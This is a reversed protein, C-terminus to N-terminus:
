NTPRCLHCKLKRQSAPTVCGIHEGREEVGGRSGATQSAPTLTECERLRRGPIRSVAPAAQELDQWPAHPPPIAWKKKVYLLELSEQTEGVKVSPENAVVTFNCSGESADGGSEYWKLARPPPPARAAPSADSAPYNRAGTRPISQCCSSLTDAYFSGAPAPTVVKCKGVM